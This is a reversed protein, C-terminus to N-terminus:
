MEISHCRQHYVLASPIVMQTRSIINQIQCMEIVQLGGKINQSM